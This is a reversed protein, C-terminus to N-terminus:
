SRGRARGLVSAIRDLLVHLLNSLYIGALFAAVARAPPPRWGVRLGFALYLAGWACAALLGLYLVRTLPGLLISHSLGRHKFAATYPWWLLRLPGWRRTADSEALDLDPSLLLSSGAYSATFVVLEDWGVGLFVGGATWLPLTALEFTLHVRGSPM